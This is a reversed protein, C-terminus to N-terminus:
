AASEEVQRWIKRRFILHVTSFSVGYRRAVVRQVEGADCAARIERVQAPTLVNKGSRNKRAMDRMNDAHTGLFLHEPRICPKNDCHHLVYLGRPIDGFHLRWSVRHTTDTRHPGDGISGYGSKLIAGTWLWCGDPGDKNVKAWFRESLPRTFAAAMLARSEPTHRKGLMGYSGRKKPACEREIESDSM